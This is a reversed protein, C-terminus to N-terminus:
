SIRALMSTRPMEWLGSAIVVMTVMSAMTLREGCGGDGDDGSDDVDGGDDDSGDGDDTGDDDGDDEYQAIRWGEM